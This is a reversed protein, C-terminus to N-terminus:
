FNFFVTEGVGQLVIDFRYVRLTSGESDQIRFGSNQAMLTARRAEPVLQLIPDQALTPDDAFYIRTFLHNLLGRAFITVCIHRAQWRQADDIGAEAMRVESQQSSVEGFPVAGPLVTDFSYGGDAASACRGFGHFTPDYPLTRADAPHNYRGAHNAQWIEILADPVAAGDGDLVSGAIRIPQGLTSRLRNAPMDVRILGDHFFPGVTQSSTADSM